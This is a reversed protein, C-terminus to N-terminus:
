PASFIGRALLQGLEQALDFTPYVAETRETADALCLGARLHTLFFYSAPSITCVLVERSPRCLLAIEPTCVSSPVAFSDPWRNARFLQVSAYPSEILALSPHPYFRVEGLDEAPTKILIEPALIPADAAHYARLWGWEIRAVDSLYPYAALPPFNAIFEPLRDGYRSLIPSTPKHAKIFLRALAKFYTEGVLRQTAPYTAELAETLSVMVATRYFAFRETAASGLETENRIEEWNEPPLNRRESPSLQRFSSPVGEEQCLAESFEKLFSSM